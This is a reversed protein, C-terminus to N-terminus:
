ARYTMTTARGPPDPMTSEHGDDILGVSLPDTRSPAIDFGHQDVWATAPFASSETDDLWRPQVGTFRRVCEGLRARAAMLGETKGSATGRLGDDPAPVTDRGIGVLGIRAFGHDFVLEKIMAYQRTLDAPEDALLCVIARARDATLAVLERHGGVLVVRQLDTSQTVRDLARDFGLRRGDVCPFPPGDPSLRMDSGLLDVLGAHMHTSRYSQILCAVWALAQRPDCAIAVPIARPRRAAFLHRLGAAQDGEEFM